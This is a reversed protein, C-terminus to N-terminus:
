YRKCNVNQETSIAKSIQSDLLVMREYAAKNEDQRFKQLIIRAKKEQGLISRDPNGQFIKPGLNSKISRLFEPPSIHNSTSMRM